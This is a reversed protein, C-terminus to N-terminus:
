LRPRPVPKVMLAKQQVIACADRMIEEVIEKAPMVKNIGGIAQGMYQPFTGAIDFHEGRNRSTHVQHKYAVIGQAQLSKMEEKRNTEWDYNYETRFCRLPRGTYLTTRLTDSSSGELVLKQHLPTGGAETAAIFRTGIWAGDAGLSLVMALGRGDYIGGGALVAIPGGHLKSTKGKCADVVQPVLVSTAIEGTHGGAEYGQACIIDCGVALAKAVHKPHGVMNQVLIGAEHLRDVAWKPPVGVASVFVKPKEECLIDIIEGLAGRTYDVNTKRASGGVQPLLLDVGYSADPNDLLAKLEAIDDRLQKPTKMAGGIVGCGGANTVAAALASNSVKAM